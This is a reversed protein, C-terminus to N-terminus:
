ADRWHLASTATRTTEASLWSNAMQMASQLEVDRNSVARSMLNSGGGDGREEAEKRQLM